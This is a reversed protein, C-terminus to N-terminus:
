IRKTPHMQPYGTFRLYRKGEMGELEGARRFISWPAGYHITSYLGVFNVGMGLATTAFVVRIIGSEKTMSQLVVEKNHKPMSSHFMAFLRNECLEPAGSPYYSKDGLTYLFHAYLEACM